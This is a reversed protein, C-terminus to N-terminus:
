VLPPFRLRFERRVDNLESGGNGNLSLPHRQTDEIAPPDPVFPRARALLVPESALPIHIANAEM